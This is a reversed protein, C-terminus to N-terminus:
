FGKDQRVLVTSSYKRSSNDPSAISVKKGTSVKEISRGVEEISRGLM